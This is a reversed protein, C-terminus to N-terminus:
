NQLILLSVKVEKVERGKGLSEVSKNIETRYAIYYGDHVMGVKMIM